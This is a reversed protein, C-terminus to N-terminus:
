LYYEEKHLFKIVAEAIMAGIGLLALFWSLSFSVSAFGSYDGGVARGIAISIILFILLLFGPIYFSSYPLEKYKELFGMKVVGFRLAVACLPLLLLFLAFLVYLGNIGWLGFTEKFGLVSVKMWAPIIASLFVLAAGGLTLYSMKDSSITSTLGSVDFGFGTPLQAPAKPAQGFQQQPQGFQQQPPQAFSQQQPQPQASFTANPDYAPGQPGQPGQPAQPAEPAQPQSYNM